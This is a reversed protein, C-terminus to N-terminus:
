MNVKGADWVLIIACTQSWICKLTFNTTVVAVLTNWICITWSSELSYILTSVGFVFLQTGHLILQPVKSINAGQPWTSWHQPTQHQEWGGGLQPFVRSKNMIFLYKLGAIRLYVPIWSLFTSWTWGNKPRPRPLSPQSPLSPKYPQCPWSNRSDELIENSTM